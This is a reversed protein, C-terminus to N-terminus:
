KPLISTGTTPVQKIRYVGEDILKDIHRYVYNGDEARLPVDRGGGVSSSKRVEDNGM